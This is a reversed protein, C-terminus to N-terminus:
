KSILIVTVDPYLNGAIPMYDVFFTKKDYTLGYHQELYELNPPYRGEIAYCQVIDRSLANELSQQEKSISSHGMSDVALFFIILVAAFLVVTLIQYARDSIRFKQVDKDEFRNSM